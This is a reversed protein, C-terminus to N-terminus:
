NKTSNEFRKRDPEDPSSSIAGESRGIGGGLFFFRFLFTNIEGENIKSTKGPRAAWVSQSSDSNSEGVGDSTNFRTGSADEASMAIKKSLNFGLGRGLGTRPRILLLELLIRSSLVPEKISSNFRSTTSGSSLLYHTYM